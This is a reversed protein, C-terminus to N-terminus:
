NGACLVSVLWRVRSLRPQLHLQVSAWGGVASAHWRPLVARRMGGQWACPTPACGRWWTLRMCYLHTICLHPWLVDVAGVVAVWVLEQLVLRVRSGVSLAEVVKGPGRAWLGQGKGVVRARQWFQAISTCSDPPPLLRLLAHDSISLQCCTPGSVVSSCAWQYHRCVGAPAVVGCLQKM